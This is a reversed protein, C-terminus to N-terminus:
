SPNKLLHLSRHVHQMSLQSIETFSHHKMKYKMAYTLICPIILVIHWMVDFYRLPLLCTCSWIVIHVQLLKNNSTVNTGHATGHGTWVPTIWMCPYINSGDSVNLAISLVTDKNLSTTLSLYSSTHVSSYWTRPKNLQIFIYCVRCMATAVSTDSVWNICVSM